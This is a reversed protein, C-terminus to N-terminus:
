APLPVNYKHFLQEFEGIVVKQQYDKLVSVVKDPRNERDWSQALRYYAYQYDPNLAIARQAYARAQDYRGLFVLSTACNSLTEVGPALIMECKQFSKLAEQLKTERETSPFNTPEPADLFGTALNLNMNGCANSIAWELQCLALQDWKSTKAQKIELVKLKLEKTEKDILDIWSKLRSWDALKWDRLEADDQSKRKHILRQWFIFFHAVANAAGARALIKIPENLIDANAGAVQEFLEKAKELAEPRYKRMYAVAENYVARDHLNDTAPVSERVYAFRVLAEDHRELLDLTVGEYLCAELAERSGPQSGRFLEFKSLAQSLTSGNQGAAYRNLLVLGERMALATDAERETANPNALLYFMKLAAGEAALAASDVGTALATSFNATRITSGSSQSTLRVWIREPTEASVSVIGTVAPLGADLWKRLSEFFKAVGALEVGGIKLQLSQAVDSLVVSPPSEHTFRLSNPLALSELKLLGASVPITPESILKSFATAVLSSIGLGTPDTLDQIRWPLGAPAARSRRHWNRLRRFGLFAPYTLAILLIAFALDILWAAPKLRDVIQKTWSPESNHLVDFARKVVVSDTTSGIVSRAIERAKDPSGYKNEWDALNLQRNELATQREQNHLVDFARKLVLPDTASGIVSRATERAKDPSGYKNEWDALDLQRNELATQREQKTRYVADLMAEASRNDPEGSLVEQLIKIADDYARNRAYVDSLHIKDAAATSENKTAKPSKADDKTWASVPVTQM